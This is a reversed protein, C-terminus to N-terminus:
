WQRVLLNAELSIWASSCETELWRVCCERVEVGVGRCGESARMSGTVGPVAVSTRSCSWGSISCSMRSAFRLCPLPGKFAAHSPANFLAWSRRFLSLDRSATGLALPLARGLATLLLDNKDPGGESLVVSGTTSSSSPCFVGVLSFLVGVVPRYWVGSESWGEVDEIGIGDCLPVGMRTLCSSSSSALAKRREEGKM